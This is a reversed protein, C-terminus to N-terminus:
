SRDVVISSPESSAGGTRFPSGGTGGIIGGSSTIFGDAGLGLDSISGRTDIGADKALVSGDPLLDIVVPTQGGVVLDVFKTGKAVSISGTGDLGLISLDLRGSRSRGVTLSFTTPFQLPASAQVMPFYKTDTAGNNLLDVQLRSIAPLGLGTNVTVLVVSQPDSKCALFGLAYIISIKLLRM